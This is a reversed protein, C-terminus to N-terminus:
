VRRKNRELRKKESPKMYYRQETVEQLVGDNNVAKKLLRLAKDLSEKDSPNSVIIKIM